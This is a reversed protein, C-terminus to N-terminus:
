PGGETGDIGRADLENIAQQLAERAQRLRPTVCKDVAKPVTTSDDALQSYLRDVHLLLDSVAESVVASSIAAM